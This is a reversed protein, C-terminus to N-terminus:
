GGGVGGDVVGERWEIKISFGLFNLPAVVTDHFIWVPSIKSLTRSLQVTVRKCFLFM